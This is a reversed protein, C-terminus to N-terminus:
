LKKVAELIKQRAFALQLLHKRNGDLDGARLGETMEILIDHMDDAGIFGASGRLTHAACFAKECDNEQFAQVLLDFYPERTFGDLYKFFLDERGMFRKCASGASIGALYLKKSIEDNM